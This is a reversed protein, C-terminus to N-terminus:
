VITLIQEDIRDFCDSQFIRGTGVRRYTDTGLQELLLICLVSHTVGLHGFEIGGSVGKLRCILLAHILISNHNQNSPSNELQRSVPVSEITVWGIHRDPRDAQMVARWIEVFNRANGTYKGIRESEEQDLHRGILLPKIRGQLRLGTYCQTLSFQDIQGSLPQVDATLQIVEQHDADIETDSDELRISSGDNRTVELITCRDSVQTSRAQWRVPIVLSAWSWTAVGCESQQPDEHAAKEWLLGIHIDRLWLGNVYENRLSSSSSSSCKSKFREQALIHGIEKAVGAIAVLRDSKANTLSSGSYAEVVACWLDEPSTTKYTFLPKFLIRWYATSRDSARAMDVGLSVTEEYENKPWLTQCEFFTQSPTLFILRRSLLWEQLVWGRTLLESERISTAYEQHVDGERKQFYIFGNQKQDPGRYPLRAIMGTLTSKRLSLCGSAADSSTILGITSLSYQYYRAMQLAECQWDKGEDGEQLICLSDIWVYQLGLLRALRFVDQFNKPLITVDLCVKRREYNDTTTRSMAVEATWRHSLSLYAGNQGQTEVLKVNRPDM